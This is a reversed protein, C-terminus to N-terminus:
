IWALINTALNLNAWSSDVFPSSFYNFIMIGGSLFYKTIFKLNLDSDCVVAGIAFAIHFLPSLLFLIGGNERHEDTKEQV